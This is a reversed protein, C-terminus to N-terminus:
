NLEHCVRNIKLINKILKEVKALDLCTTPDSLAKDPTPHTEIFIGAIKTSTGALALDVIQERRGSSATGTTERCQLSHTVDFIIPFNYFM